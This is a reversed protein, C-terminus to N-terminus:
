IALNRTAAQHAPDLPEGSKGEHMEYLCFMDGGYHKCRLCSKGQRLQEKIRWSVTKSDLIKEIKKEADFYIKRM